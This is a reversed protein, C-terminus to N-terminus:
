LFLKISRPYERVEAAGTVAGTQQGRISWSNILKVASQVKLSQGQLLYHLSTIWDTNDFKFNLVVLHSWDVHFLVQKGLVPVLDM